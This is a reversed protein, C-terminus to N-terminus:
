ADKLWEWRKADTAGVDALLQAAPGSPEQLISGLLHFPHVSARRRADAEAVAAQVAADAAPDAPLEQGLLPDADPLLRAGILARLKPM